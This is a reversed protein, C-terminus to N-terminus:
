PSYAITTQISKTRLTATFSSIARARPLLSVKQSALIRADLGSSRDFSRHAYLVIAFPFSLIEEWLAVMAARPPLLLLLLLLLSSTPIARVKPSQGKASQEFFGPEATDVAKVWQANSVFIKALAADMKTLNHQHHQQHRHSSLHFSQCLPSSLSAAVTRTPAASPVHFQRGRGQGQQCAQPQAVSAVPRPLAPTEARFGSSGNVCVVIKAVAAVRSPM